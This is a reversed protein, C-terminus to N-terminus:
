SPRAKGKNHNKHQNCLQTVNCAGIPWGCVICGAEIPLKPRAVALTRRLTREIEAWRGAHEGTAATPLWRNIGVAVNDPQHGTVAAIEHFTMDTYRWLASWVAARTWQALKRWGSIEALTVGTAGLVTAVILRARDDEIDPAGDLVWGEGAVLRRYQVAHMRALQVLAGVQATMDPPLDYAGLAYLTTTIEAVLAEDPSASKSLRRMTRRAVHVRKARDADMVAVRQLTPVLRELDPAPEAPEPSPAAVKDVFALSAFTSGDAKTRTPAADLSFLKRQRRGKRTAERWLARVAATLPDEDGAELVAVWATQHAEDRGLKTVDNAARKLAEDVIAQMGDDAAATAAQRM